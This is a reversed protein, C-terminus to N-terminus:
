WWRESHCRWVLGKTEYGCEVVELFDGGLGDGLGCVDVGPVGGDEAEGGGGDALEELLDLADGVRALVVGDGVDGVPLADAGVRAGAEGGSLRVDEEM